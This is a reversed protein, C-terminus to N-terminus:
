PRGFTDPLRIELGIPGISERRQQEARRQRELRELETDAKHLALIAEEEIPAEQLREALALLPEAIEVAITGRETDISAVAVRTGGGETTGSTRAALEARARRRADQLLAATERERHPELLLRPGDQGRHIEARLQVSLALALANERLRLARFMGFLHASAIDIAAEPPLRYEPTLEEKRNWARIQLRRTSPRTANPNVRTAIVLHRPVMVKAGNVTVTVNLAQKYWRDPCANKGSLQATVGKAEAVAWEYAGTSQAGPIPRLAIYDPRLRSRSAPDRDTVLKTQPFQPPWAEVDVSLVANPYFASLPAIWAYGDRRLFHRAGGVGLMWSLVSKWQREGRAATDRLALFRTGYTPLDEILFPPWSMFATGDAPPLSPVWDAALHRSIDGVTMALPVPTTSGVDWFEVFM